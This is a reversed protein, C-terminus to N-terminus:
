QVIVTMVSDFVDNGDPDTVHYELTVFTLEGSSGEKQEVNEIEGSVHYEIGTRISREFHLEQGAYFLGSDSDLGLNEVIRTVSMGSGAVAIQTAFEPPVAVGSDDESEGYRYRDDENRTADAWLFAMWRKVRYTGSPLEPDTVDIETM